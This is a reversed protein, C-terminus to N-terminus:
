ARRRELHGNEWYWEITRKLGEEMTFNPRWGLLAKARANSYWREENMSEVTKIHWLFTNKKRNKIPSLLGIGIKALTAPVWLRPPSVGLTDCLFSVLSKYSMPEDPCLIFTNNVADEATVAKVFGDAVDEVYTYMIHREGNGPLVPVAGDNLAKILEYATYFDGEGFVGTPRLIIHSIGTDQSVERVINEALVKSHGYKFRPRLPTTEDGPPSEVPGIAETSSCYVFREVETGVCANILARTGDVNVRYMHNVDRPYFDLVAALHLVVDVRKVADELSAEETVDGYRLEVGEPIKGVDSTKRVLAKVDHGSDLLRRLLRGGIFGTGGTVLVRLM